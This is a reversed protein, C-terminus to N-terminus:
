NASRHYKAVTFGIMMPVDLAMVVLMASLLVLAWGRTGDFIFVYELMGAIVAYALLAWKAVGVFKKRAFKELALIRIGSVLLLAAGLVALISPILLPAPRPYYASLDIGGLVILVLAGIGGEVVGELGREGLSKEQAEPVGGTM